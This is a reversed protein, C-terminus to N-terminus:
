KVEFIHTSVIGKGLNSNGGIQIVPNLGKKFFDEIKELQGEGEFSGKKISFIPSLIAFSYMITETPLYEETFLAGSKVTGTENDIKTRTIIETSLSTFETFLDDTLIILDKKLKEKLSDYFNGNPLIRESLWVGLGEVKKDREVKITFEELIIKSEEGLKDIICSSNPSIMGEKCDYYNFRPTQIGAIDLDSFFRDLVAPCTVWAFIGKLSKVPFLLIRADTFGLSGSFDKDEGFYKKVEEDLGNDDYGFLVNIDKIKEIDGKYRMEFSSRISGKIGSAEIKPWGTHRERQIPLDVIGVDSGVGVHLPTECLLFIPLMKTSM